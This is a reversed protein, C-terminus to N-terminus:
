NILYIIILNNIKSCFYPFYRFVLLSYFIKNNFFMLVVEIELLRSTVNYLM